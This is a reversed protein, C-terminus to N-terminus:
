KATSYIWVGRDSRVRELQNQDTLLKLLGSVSASFRNFKSSGRVEYREALMHSLEHSTLPHNANRVSEVIVQSLGRRNQKKPKYATKKPVLTEKIRKTIGTTPGTHNVLELVKTIQDRETDLETLRTQLRKIAQTREGPVLIDLLKGLPMGQKM